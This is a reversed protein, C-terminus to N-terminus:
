SMLDKKEVVDKLGSAHIQIVSDRDGVMVKPRSVSLGRVRILPSCFRIYSFHIGSARATM